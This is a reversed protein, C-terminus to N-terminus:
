YHLIHKLNPTEVPFTTFDTSIRDCHLSEVILTNWNSFPCHTKSDRNKLHASANFKSALVIHGSKNQSDKIAATHCHLYCNIANLDICM